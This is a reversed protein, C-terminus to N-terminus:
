LFYVMSNIILTASLIIVQKNEVFETFHNFFYGMLIPLSMLILSLFFQVYLLSKFEPILTGFTFKILDFLTDIKDPLPKTLTYGYNRVHLLQNVTLAEEGAHTSRVYGGFAKPVLVCPLDDIFALIMGLDDEWWNQDLNIKQIRVGSHTSIREII